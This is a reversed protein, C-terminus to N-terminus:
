FSFFHYWGLIMVWKQAAKLQKLWIELFRSNEPILAGSGTTYGCFKLHWGPTIKSVSPLMRFIFFFTSKVIFFNFLTGRIHGGGINM